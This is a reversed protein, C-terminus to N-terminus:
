GGRNGAEGDENTERKVDTADINGGLGRAEDKRVIRGNKFNGKLSVVFNRPNADRFVNPIPEVPQRFRFALSLSNADRFFQDINRKLFSNSVKVQDRWQPSIVQSGFNDRVDLFM